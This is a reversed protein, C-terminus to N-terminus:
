KTKRKKSQDEVRSIKSKSIRVRGSNVMAELNIPKAKTQDKGKQQDIIKKLFM